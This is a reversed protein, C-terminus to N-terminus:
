PGITGLTLILAVILGVVIIFALTVIGLTVGTRAKKNKPDEKKAKDGIIIALIALPISALNVFPIFLAAAACIGLTLATKGKDTEGEKKLSKLDKKLKWQFIKFAIREKLKLKRGIMKEAEKIKMTLFNSLSIAPTIIKSSFGSNTQSAPTNAPYAQLSCFLLVFFVLRIKM